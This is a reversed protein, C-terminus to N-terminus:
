MKDLSKASLLINLIAGSFKAGNFFTLIKYIINQISSQRM